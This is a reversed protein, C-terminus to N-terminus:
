AKNMRSLSQQLDMCAESGRDESLVSALPDGFTQLVAANAGFAGKLQQLFSPSALCIRTQTKKKFPASLMIRKSHYRM